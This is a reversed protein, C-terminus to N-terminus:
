KLIVLKCAGSFEVKKADPDTAVIRFIYIGSPLASGLDDSGDWNVRHIGPEHRGSILMRVRRGTLDYIEGRIVATQPIHYRVTTTPNFPNPYNQKLAFEKPMLQSREHIEVTTADLTLRYPGNAAETELNGDTSIVNWTGGVIGAGEMRRVIEDYTVGWSHDVIGETTLFSLTDTSVLDYSVTDGDVDHTEEWAFVLPQSLMGPTIQVVMSDEPWVLNFPAPGDNVSTVVLTFSEMVGTSGDSVMFSVHATGHWNALPVISLHFGTTDEELTASVRDTDVSVNSYTLSDGEADTDPLSLTISSDEVMVVEGLEVSPTDDVAAVTVTFTVLSSDIGGNETGGDDKVKVEIVVAGNANALPAYTLSGLSDPSSYDVQPDSLLEHDGSVATVMLLQTENEAGPYIGGIEIRQEGADELIIEPDSIPALLPSDNVPLTTLTAKAVPSNEIGDTAFYTFTDRGFFDADPEYEFSGDPNFTLAGHSVDGVLSAWLVDADGDYDNDLVGPASVPLTSDEDVAYADALAEPTRNRSNAEGPSGGDLRSQRWSSALGNDLFPDILELSPGGGNASPPWPTADDYTVSDVLDGHSTILVVAEGDNILNGATWQISGSYTAGNKAMLLFGGAAISDSSMFVHSIGERFTCEALNVTQSGRNYLELFEYDSDSGQASGPDYHIENIVIEPVDNDTISIWVDNVPIGNYDTDDSTATHTIVGSHRGEYSSDDVAMVTITQPTGYNSATFTVSSDSVTVEDDTVGTTIHVDSIPASALDLAYSDTSGGETVETGEDSQTIKVGAEDNDLVTVTVNSVIIGDYSPDISTASHTIMSSHLGEIKRDDMASVTVTQIADYDSATFTLSEANVTTQSDPSITVTVNARPRSELELTYTDTTGGEMVTTGGSSEHITVGVFRQGNVKTGPSFLRGDAGSAQGHKVFSGSIDPDRTLSQDDAGETGYAFLTVNAGNSAKLVVSDGGNNLSLQGESATQVPSNGFSGTPSGGGFVIIAGGDPLITNDPFTHRVAGKDSLTWSGVNVTSGHHNVLEIFEDDSGDRTGDGNSDGPTGSAPDALIENILVVPADNDQITLTFRTISGRQASSNGSVNQLEFISTEDSEFESDDTVTLTVTRNDSIGAPFTVRQTTFTSMDSGNTATGGILAVDATTALSDDEATISVEIGYTGRGESVIGWSSSFQVTTNGVQLAVSFSIPWNGKDIRENSTTWNDSNSIASLLASKTGSTTSGSYYGNDKEVIALASLGDALGPPIASENSNTADTQWETGESNFAYIFVPNSSSDQFAIIQDGTSSLSMGNTGVSSDNASSFDGQSSPYVIVTGATVGGVPVTYKVAGENGRFTGSSTIGSDTFYLQTGPELDVVTVFGFEDPNDCNFGVIAIDGASLVTEAWLPAGTVMILRSLIRLFRRLRVYGLLCRIM